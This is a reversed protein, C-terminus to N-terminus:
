AGKLAIPKGADYKVHVSKPKRRMPRGYTVDQHCTACLVLTKRKRAAMIKVWAPKERGNYMKLDKLARIHHVEIREADGTAGCYECTDALLRKELESRGPGLFMWHDKIPAKSDWQLSIAGWRAVLPKKGEREIITQLVKYCKKGERFIAQYKRYVKPVSLKHKAALTKTLSQEMVGELTTLRHLNYALRYYEVLGRYEAQFLEIITFDSDNILETRHLVKRSHHKYRQCKNQIVEEPVRLGINGNHSRRDRQDRQSDEQITHIEYNLFRATETKAHTILTKAESLELKLEEQPFTRLREKIEEAEEKPGVFGLLFDDAYRCFRLRRYDPDDLVQSPLSQAQRRVRRAEQQRGTRSLYSARHILQEYAKNAKRKTGKTYEPILETEVFKDLKDLYLNALIPSVISGQPSGSYTQNWRWEELYGAKLLGSILRLFREDKITERLISLLLEHSLADFCKSIDGEIFWVTGVWNHYIERLATHCGREPRFGHSHPSFQPEFYADLILRVVEQLLKDSWSQIGLPRKRGDKKPIYIRRAPSWHYREHRLADVITAIKDKSMGDATEETTGKTMAGHNRYIKGYAMLYLNPNFLLRYVRELPLRKKGRERLLQLITRAERMVRGKRCGVRHCRGQVGKDVPARQREKSRQGKGM